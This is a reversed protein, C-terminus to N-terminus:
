CATCNYTYMFVSDNQNMRHIKANREVLFDQGYVNKGKRARSYSSTLREVQQSKPVDQPPFLFILRGAPLIRWLM